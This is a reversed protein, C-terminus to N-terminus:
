YIISSNNLNENIIHNELESNEYFYSSNYHIGRTDEHLPNNEVPSNFLSVKTKAIM